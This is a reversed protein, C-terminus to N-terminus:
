LRLRPNAVEGVAADIEDRSYERHYSDREAPEEPTSITVRRVREIPEETRSDGDPGYITVKRAM